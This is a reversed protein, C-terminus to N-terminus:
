LFLVVLLYGYDRVHPLVRLHCKMLVCVGLALTVEMYKLLLEVRCDIVTDLVFVIRM